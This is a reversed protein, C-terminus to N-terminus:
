ADIDAAPILLDAAIQDCVQELVRKPAPQDAIWSLCEISSEVLHHGLEHMLTFNERRSATPRYSSSRATSSRCATAGAATVANASPTLPSCASDSTPGSQTPSTTPWIEGYTM